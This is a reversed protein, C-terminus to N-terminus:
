PQPVLPPFLMRTLDRIKAEADIFRDYGAGGFWRMYWPVEYLAEGSQVGNTFVLIEAYGM